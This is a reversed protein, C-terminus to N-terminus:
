LNVRTARTPPDELKGHTYRFQILNADMSWSANKMPVQIVKEKVYQLKSDGNKTCFDPKTWPAIINISDNLAYFSLEFTMCENSNCIGHAIYDINEEEVLEIASKARITNVLSNGVDYLAHGQIAPFIFLRVLESKLDTVVFEQVGLKSAM